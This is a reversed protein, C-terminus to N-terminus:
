LTVELHDIESFAIATNATHFKKADKTQENLINPGRHVLRDYVFHLTSIGAFLFLDLAKYLCNQTKEYCRM